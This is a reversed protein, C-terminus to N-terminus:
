EIWENGSDDGTPNLEVENIRVEAFALNLNVFIFSFVLILGILLHGKM